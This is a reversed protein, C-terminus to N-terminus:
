SLLRCLGAPPGDQLLATVYYYEPSAPSETIDTLGRIGEPTFYRVGDMGVTTDAQGDELLRAVYGIAGGPAMKRGALVVRSSSDIFTDFNYLVVDDPENPEILVTQGGNFDSSIQGQSDFKGVAVVGRGDLFTAGGRQGTFFVNGAEDPLLKFFSTYAYNGFDTFYGDGAFSQDLAGSEDFRAIFPIGPHEGGILMMGNNQPLLRYPKFWMYSKPEVLGNGNFTPDFEGDPTLRLVYARHAGETVDQVSTVILLKGDPLSKLDGYSRFPFRAVRPVPIKSALKSLPRPRKLEPGPLPYIGVGGNAFGLDKSGDSNFCALALCTIRREDELVVHTELRALLRGDALRDLSLLHGDNRASPEATQLDVSAYGQQGFLTDLQYGPSIRVLTPPQMPNEDQCGVVFGGEPLALVLDAYLGREGAVPNPIVIPAFGPDVEGARGSQRVTEM